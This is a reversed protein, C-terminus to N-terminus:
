VVGRMATRRAKSDIQPADQDELSNLEHRISEDAAGEDSDSAPEM